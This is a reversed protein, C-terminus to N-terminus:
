VLGLVLCSGPRSMARSAAGSAFQAWIRCWTHCWMRCRVCYWVRCWVWALCPVSIPAPRLGSSSTFRARVRHWVHYWIRVQVLRPVPNPYRVRWTRPGSRNRSTALFLWCTLVDFLSASPCRVDVQSSGPVLIHQWPFLHACVPLSLAIWFM